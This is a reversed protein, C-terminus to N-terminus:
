PRNRISNSIMNQVQIYELDDEIKKEVYETGDLISSIKQDRNETFLRSEIDDIFMDIVMHSRQYPSWDQDRITFISKRRKTKRVLTEKSDVKPMQSYKKNGRLKILINNTPRPFFFYNFRNM